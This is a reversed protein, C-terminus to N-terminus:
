TIFIIILLLIITSIQHNSSCSIYHPKIKTFSFKLEIKHEFDAALDKWLDNGIHDFHKYDKAKVELSRIKEDMLEITRQQSQILLGLENEKRPINVKSNSVNESFKINPYADILKELSGPKPKRDGNEYGVISMRKLGMLAAMESQTMNLDHRIIRLARGINAATNTQIYTDINILIAEWLKISLIIILRNTYSFWSIYLM